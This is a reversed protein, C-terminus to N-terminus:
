QCHFIFFFNCASEDIICQSRFTRGDGCAAKITVHRHGVTARRNAVRVFVCATVSSLETFVFSGSQDIDAITVGDPVADSFM